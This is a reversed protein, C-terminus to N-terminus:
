VTGNALYDLWGDIVTTVLGLIFFYCITRICDKKNWDNQISSSSEPKGPLEYSGNLGFLSLFLCLFVFCSLSFSVQRGGEPAKETVHTLSHRSIAGRDVSTHLSTQGENQTGGVSGVTVGSAPAARTCSLTSTGVGVGWGPSCIMWWFLAHGCECDPPRRDEEKLSPCLCCYAIEQSGCTM